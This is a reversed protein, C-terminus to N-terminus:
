SVAWTEGAHLLKEITGKGQRQIVAQGQEAM